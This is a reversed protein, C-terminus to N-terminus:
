TPNSLVAGDRRARAAVQLCLQAFSQALLSADRRDATRRGADALKDALTPDDLVSGIHKVLAEPTDGILINEGHRAPLGMAGVPSSVLPRRMAWAQLSTTKVGSGEFAPVLVVRAREYYERVDAVRGTVMAAGQKLTAAVEGDIEGVFAWRWAALPGCEQAAKWTRVAGEYNRRSRLDGVVVVDVDRPPFSSEQFYTTDIGHPIVNIKEAGIYRGFYKRESESIAVVADVQSNLRRYLSLFRSREREALWRNRRTSGLLASALVAEWPEELVSLIPVGYPVHDTLHALYPLHLVVADPRAESIVEQLRPWRRPYCAFPLPDFPYQILTRQLRGTASSLDRWAQRRVALRRVCVAGLSDPPEPTSEEFPLWILVLTTDMHERVAEIFKYLRPAFGSRSQESPVIRSVIVLRPRAPSMVDWYLPITDIWTEDRSGDRPGM